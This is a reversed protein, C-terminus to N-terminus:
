LYPPPAPGVRPDNAPRERSPASVEMGDFRGSDEHICVRGQTSGVWLDLEPVGEIDPRPHLKGSRGRSLRSRFVEM